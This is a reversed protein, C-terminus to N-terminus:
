KLAQVITSVNHRYTEAFTKGEALGDAYLEGGLRAGTERTIEQLVKPNNFEETFIAKVGQEKIVRIIEAVRQSSPEDASSIGEIAYVTFGFDRAFFQFADHSTVLRRRDRPLESIEQRAWRALDDLQALYKAANKAFLPAQETRLGALADRVLRTAQQVRSISHWWHPDEMEKGESNGSRGASFGHPAFAGIEVVRGAQSNRKLKDVYNEMHHSSILILEATGVIQLDRPTPQFEHPDVGPKVHSTVTVADGGIQEAIETLVTSFSSVRITEAGHMPQPPASLFAAAAALFLLAVRM